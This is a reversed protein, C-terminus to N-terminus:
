VEYTQGQVAITVQRGLEARVATALGELSDPEGHVLLVDAKDTGRLWDIIGQQDAHASLGNITYIRARVAVPEGFIHVSRAGDVISRGLTGVAQYGVFIVSCDPRWLNNRLHHLIRGGNAMGSGAIIINGSPRRNIARSDETSPTFEVGPFEFPDEGADLSAILRPNLDRLHREYAQTISVALPSDLFIRCERSIEGADWMQHLYYLVDQSRELAFSPIVVNGGREIAEKVASAFEQRSEEPPRHPRNGYTAESVVLDCPHPIAPDPMVERGRYGLDGSLTARKNGSNRREELEIFAAGLIHGSNRFTASVGDGLSLPADYAAPAEFLDVAVLVDEVAYPPPEVDHGQREGKRRQYGYEEYMIHAADMMILRGIERTEATALVPGHYGAKVLAPLRGIHDLHSHTLLVADISRPDFPFPEASRAYSNDGGQFQGCDVLVRKGGTEV